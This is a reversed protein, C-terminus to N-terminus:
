DYDYDVFIGEYKDDLKNYIWYWEDKEDRLLGIRYIDENGSLKTLDHFQCYYDDVVIRKGKSDFICFTKERGERSSEVKETHFPGHLKIFEPLSWTKNFDYDKTRDLKPLSEHLLNDINAKEWSPVYISQLADCGKFIGEPASPGGMIDISTLNRCNEFAFARIYRVSKPLVIYKLNECGYFAFEGIAVVTDPIIVTQLSKCMSFAKDCIVVTGDKIEYNNIDPVHLLLQSDRSYQAGYKDVIASKLENDYVKTSLTYDIKILNAYKSLMSKIRKYSLINVRICRLYCGWFAGEGVSVISKPLTITKINYCNFFAHDGISLLGEPFDVSELRSSESFAYNGISKLGKSFQISRIDCYSFAKDGISTVSSPICLSSLHNGEFAENCIENVSNPIIVNELNCHLFAKEGICEVTSPIEFSSNTSHCSILTKGDITYLTENEIKFFRSGESIKVFTKPSFPNGFIKNVTAPIDIEKLSDSRLSDRGLIKVGQPITISKIFFCNEFAHDAIVLTGEIISYHDCEMDEPARLLKKKDKSYRVGLNDIFSNRLEDVTMCSDLEDVFSNDSIGEDTNRVSAWSYICLDDLSTCDFLNSYSKSRDALSAINDKFYVCFRLISHLDIWAFQLQTKIKEIDNGLSFPNIHHKIDEYIETASKDLVDLYLDNYQENLIDLLKCFTSKDKWQKIIWVFPYAEQIYVNDKCSISGKDQWIWSPLNDNDKDYPSFYLFSIGPRLMMITLGHRKYSAEYNFNNDGGVKENTEKKSSQSSTKLYEQIDSTITSASSSSNREKKLSDNSVIHETFHDLLVGLLGLNSDGSAYFEFEGKYKKSNINNAFNQFFDINGENYPFSIQSIIDCGNFANSSINKVIDMFFLRRLSLCNGFANDGISVLTSPFDVSEIDKDNLFANEAIRELGQALEVNSRQETLISQYGGYLIYNGSGNKAIVLHNKRDVIQTPNLEGISKSFSVYKYEEDKDIFFLMKYTNGTEKDSFTGLKCKGFLRAFELLKWSKVFGHNLQSPLNALLVTHNKDYLLTGDKIYEKTDLQLAHLNNCGVFPNCENIVEVSAPINVYELQENFAFASSGITVVTDPLIVKKLVNKNNGCQSFANDCIVLTGERVTYDELAKTAKILRHGNKSYLVGYEDLIGNKIDDKTVVTDVVEFASDDETKDFFHTVDTSEYPRIRRRLDDISIGLEGIMRLFKDKLHYPRTIDFIVVCHYLFYDLEQVNNITKLVKLHGEEDEENNIIDSCEIDSLCLHVQYYRLIRFVINSDTTFIFFNIYFYLAQKQDENLYDAEIPLPLEKLDAVERMTKLYEPKIFSDLADGKLFSCIHYKSDDHSVMFYFIGDSYVNRKIDKLQLCIDYFYDKGYGKRINKIVDFYDHFSYSSMTIIDLVDMPRLSFKQLFEVYPTPEYDFSNKYCIDYAFFGAIYIMATQQERSLDKLDIMILRDVDEKTLKEESSINETSTDSFNNVHVEIDNSDTPESSKTQSISDNRKTAQTDLTNGILSSNHHFKSDPMEEVINYKKFIKLAEDRLEEETCFNYKSNVRKSWNVFAYLVALAQTENSQFAFWLVSNVAAGFDIFSPMLQKEISFADISAIKSSSMVKRFIKDVKTRGHHALYYDAVFDDVIEELSLTSSLYYEYLPYEM